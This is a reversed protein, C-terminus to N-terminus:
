YSNSGANYQINQQSYITQGPQFGGGVVGGGGGFLTNVLIGALSWVSFLVFIAIVGWFILKRGQDHDESSSSYIYKVIGLFFILIAVSVLIMAIPNIYSIFFYALEAFTKPAAFTALPTLASILAASIAVYARQVTKSM